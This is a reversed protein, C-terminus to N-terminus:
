FHVIRRHKPPLARPQLVSVAALPQDRFWPSAVREVRAGVQLLWVVVVRGVCVGKLDCCNAKEAAVTINSEEDMSFAQVLNHLVSQHIEWRTSRKPKLRQGSYMSSCSMDHSVVQEGNRM